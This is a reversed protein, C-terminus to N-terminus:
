AGGPLRLLVCLVWAVATLTLHIMTRTFVPM